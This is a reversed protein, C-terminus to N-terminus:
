EATPGGRRRRGLWSFFFGGLVATLGAGVLTLWSHSRFPERQDLAAWTLGLIVILAFTLIRERM